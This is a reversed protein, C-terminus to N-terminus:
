ETGGKYGLKKLVEDSKDFKPSSYLIGSSQAKDFIVVYSGREALDKVANFIKDQLPQVLEKRKTFLEGNVGFKDKQYQLADKEKKKIEEEKQKIMDATMLIKEAKFLKRLEEIEVYKAEVTNQWRKALADLESQAEQYEPINQLIYETDIYAFRQANSNLSIFSLGIFLLLFHIIRM